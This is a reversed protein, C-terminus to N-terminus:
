IKRSFFISGSIQDWFYGRPGVLQLGNKFFTVGTTLNQFNNPGSGLKDLTKSGYSLQQACKGRTANYTYVHDMIYILKLFVIPGFFCWKWKVKVESVILCVNIFTHYWEYGLHYIYKCRLHMDFTRTRRFTNKARPGNKPSRPKEANQCFVGWEGVWWWLLHSPDRPSFM